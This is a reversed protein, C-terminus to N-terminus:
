DQPEEKRYRKNIYKRNNKKADWYAEQLAQMIADMDEEDMEGGAWMSGIDAVMDWAQKAGRSGYQENARIVFSANTDLLVDESIDLAQALKTYTDRSKPMRVGLEYNQITRLSIGTEKALGNQSLGKAMRANRIKEGFEM